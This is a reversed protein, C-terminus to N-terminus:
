EGQPMPVWFSFKSGKGLISVVSVGGGYHEVVEKVLALGLGTGPIQQKLVNQCRHFRKFVSEIENAPIGMGTDEIESVIYYGLNAPFINPRTTDEPSNKIKYLRLTIAGGSPTYKLANDVLNRWVRALDVESGIVEFATQEVEQSVHIDKVRASVSLEEYVHDFIHKMNVTPLNEHSEFGDIRALALMDEILDHLIQAQESIRKISTQRQEEKMRDYHTQLTNAGLIISTLPTRLEHSVNSIFQDKLREIEKYRTIDHINCVVGRLTDQIDEIPSLVVEVDFTTGNKRRAKVEVSQRKAESMVRQLTEEITQHYAPDVLTHIPEGFLEDPEYGFLRDFAPNTDRISGEAATMVLTDNTSNLISAMRQNARSLQATRQEVAQTLSLNKAEIESHLLTNELAQGLVLSISALLSTEQISIHDPTPLAFLIVGVNHGAVPLPLLLYAEGEQIPLLDFLHQAERLEEPKTITAIQEFTYPEYNALWSQLCEQQDIQTYLLPAKLRPDFLLALGASFRFSAILERMVPLLVEEIRLSNSAIALILNITILENAARDADAQSLANKLAYAARQAFAELVRIDQAKFADLRPSQLDLVGIVQQNAMLPIVLESRTAPDNPLYRPEQLVNPIYITKAQRIAEPVVGRGELQLPTIPHAQDTGARPFRLIKYQNRDVLMVGCDAQGFETVVAQTIREITTELDHALLIHSLAQYLQTLEEKNIEELTV